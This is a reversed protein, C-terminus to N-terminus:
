MTVKYIENSRRKGVSKLFGEYELVDIAAKIPQEGKIMQPPLYTSLQSKTFSHQPLADLVLHLPSGPESIDGMNVRIPGCSGAVINCIWGGDSNKYYLYNGSAGLIKDQHQRSFAFNFGEPIDTMDLHADGKKGSEEGDHWNIPHYVPIMFNSLVPPEDLRSKALEVYQSRKDIGIFERNLHHAIKTTQGSGNMPDLVIDGEKSYLTILRWPIQEPFVAPHNLSLPPVPTIDWVTKESELKAAEDVPLDWVSLAVQRKMARNLPIKNTTSKDITRRESGKELIIIYEHMINSRYYTPLPTKVFIGFRNGAGNRGATVKNWIITDRLRWGEDLPEEGVLRSILLSPLPVLKGHDVEDGIVICCFGGPITVKYVESFIKEMENLYETTQIGVDGRFRDNKGDSSNKVHKSYNIANRYPPSTVTLAVSEPKVYESLNQSDAVIIDNVVYKTKGM